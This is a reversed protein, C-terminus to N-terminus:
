VSFSRSAVFLDLLENRVVGKLPCVPRGLENKEDKVRYIMKTTLAGELQFWGYIQPLMQVKNAFVVPASSYTKNFALSEEVGSSNFTKSIQFTSFDVSRGDFTFNSANRKVAVWGLQELSPSSDSKTCVRGIQTSNSASANTGADFRVAATCFNIALGGGYKADAVDQIQSFVVPRTSFNSAADLEIKNWYNNGQIACATSRESTGIPMIKGANVITGDPLAHAGPAVAMYSITPLATMIWRVFEADATLNGSVPFSLAVQFSTTTVFRVRAAVERSSIMPVQAIVIPVEKFESTFKVIQWGFVKLAAQGLEFKKSSKCIVGTLNTLNGIKVSAYGANCACQFSGVTNNCTAHAHCNHTKSACEDVDSCVTGDGFYGPKCTCAFSGATNSCVSDKQCVTRNSILLNCEDIDWCGDKAPWGGTYKTGLGSYGPKCKCTFSGVTDYCYSHDDCNHAGTACENVNSCVAGNGSYGAQCQCIFSGVVNTCNALTANCINALSTNGTLASGTQNTTNLLTRASLMNACEDEDVCNGGLSKYGTSCACTFSGATDTCASNEPCNHTGLSCENTNVCERGNGSYGPKCMCFFSGESNYCKAKTADCTHNTVNNSTCENLDTCNTGNGSYGTKCACTFSGDTDTCKANKDCDHKKFVCEDMETCSTGDGMFGGKCACSFSGESDVCTANGHCSAIGENCENKNICKTTTTNSKNYGDLCDCKFGGLTNVCGIGLEGNTACGHSNAKCEDFDECKRTTTNYQFGVKCKCVFSGQTDECVSETLNCSHNTINNSTCENINDCRKDVASQTWGPKCYCKFSGATNNCQSSALVSMTCPSNPAAQACEDVDTCNVGNGLYGANCKCFFSGITDFCASQNHCNHVKATINSGHITCENITACSGNILRYGPQCDCTFSGVTNKCTTGELAACRNTACEDMDTCATPDASTANAFYGVKCACLFSGVTDSCQSNTSCNHQHGTTTTNCENINSCQLKQSTNIQTLNTYGALCGCRFSGVTDICGVGLGMGNCTHTGATCENLNNCVPLTGSYGTGCKCQFSGATNVCPNQIKCTHNNRACEDVDVCVAGQIEYGPLCTTRSQSGSFKIKASWVGLVSTLLILFKM